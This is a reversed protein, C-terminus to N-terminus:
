DEKNKEKGKEEKPPPSPMKSSTPDIPRVKCFLEVDADTVQKRREQYETIFEAISDACIQKVESTLMRGSSYEEGIRRYEDDDELFFQLYQYAVDVKLNAGKAKQEELNDGGGSFAHRKIKNRIQKPTDSLFITTSTDSAAMKGHLGTIAPFFKSHICAPKEYKLKKAIDRTMRFYPDQDIGQPILCPVNKKKGYIHPFSNSFSPVAQVAPFAFKGANDSDNFGFVGKVNNLTLARQMKCVNPYLTAIYDVDSFIFTKDPNFGFAIIDKINSKGMEYCKELTLNQKHFFKEDDTIQIVLPVDFADQLYKTFIFPLAHGLHLSESSPGRGTYLYFGRGQQYANLIFDLSRHSFFIGRRLFRHPKMGTLEEIKALHAESIKDCGFKDILKDYDVGEAGAKVEFANIEQDDAATKDEEASQPADVKPEEQVPPTSAEAATNEM